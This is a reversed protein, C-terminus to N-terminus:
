NYCNCGSEFDLGPAIVIGDSDSRAQGAEQPRIPHGTGRDWKPLRLKWLRTKPCGARRVRLRARVAAEWAADRAALEAKIRAVEAAPDTANM